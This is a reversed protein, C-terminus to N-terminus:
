RIYRVDAETDRITAGTVDRGENKENDIWQVAGAMSFFLKEEGKLPLWVSFRPKANSM